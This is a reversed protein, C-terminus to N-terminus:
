AATRRERLAKDIQNMARRVTLSADPFLNAIVKAYEDVVHKLKEVAEAPVGECNDNIIEQFVSVANSLLELEKGEVKKAKAARALDIVYKLSAELDPTQAAADPADGNEGEPEEPGKEPQAVLYQPEKGEFTVKVLAKEGLTKCVLEAVDNTV